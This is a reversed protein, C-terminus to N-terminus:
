DHPEAWHPWAPFGRSWARSGLDGHERGRGSVSLAAPLTERGHISLSLRSRWGNGCRSIALCPAFRTGRLWHLRWPCRHNGRLWLPRAPRNGRCPSPSPAPAKALPGHGTTATRQVLPKRRGTPDEVSGFPPTSSTFGAQPSIPSQQPPRPIRNYVPGLTGTSSGTGDREEEGRERDTKGIIM